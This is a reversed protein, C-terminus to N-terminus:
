HHAICCTVVHVTGAVEIDSSALQQNSGTRQRGCGYRSGAFTL